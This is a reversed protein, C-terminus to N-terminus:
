FIKPHYITHGRFCQDITKGALVQRMGIIVVSSAAERTTRGIIEEVIEEFALRWKAPVTTIQTSALIDDGIKIIIEIAIRRPHGIGSIKCPMKEM